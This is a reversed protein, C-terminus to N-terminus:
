FRFSVEAGVFHNEQESDKVNDLNDIQEYGYRVRVNAWKKFDFGAEIFYQYKEEPYAKSIGSREKDFGVKYLFKDKIAHSLEIFLDDSDTGAHHGFERGHHKM